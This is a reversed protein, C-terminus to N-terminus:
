RICIQPVDQIPPAKKLHNPKVEMDISRVLDDPLDNKLMWKIIQERGSHILPILKNKNALDVKYRKGHFTTHHHVTVNRSMFTRLPGYVQTIWDDMWWDSLQVPYYNMDFIDMHTRHVFDHTLIRDNTGSSSPGIAGYPRGLATLTCVYTSAWPGGFETDDNIRYFYDAGIDYALRAMEIFVPGPKKITNRVRVMELTMEIGNAQLPESIFIRFWEQVEDYGKDTDYYPDGQDFGLVYV